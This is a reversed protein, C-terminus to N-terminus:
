RVVCNARLKKLELQLWQVLQGKQGSGVRQGNFEIVPVIESICNTIFIEDASELVEQKFFGEQLILGASRILEVVKQRMIGNLIGTELSPTFVMDGTSWFINSVTGETIHSNNDLYIGEQWGNNNLESAALVQNIFNMSKLGAGAWQGGPHRSKLLGAKIGQEQRESIFAPLPKSYVICNPSQCQSFDLGLPGVGRSVTVRVYASELGNVQVAREIWLRLEEETFPLQLHIQQAQQSLRLWHNEFWLPRREEVRITTFLGDGYLFGHDMVSVVAKSEETVRGNIILYNSM